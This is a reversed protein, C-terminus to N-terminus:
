AIVLWWDCIKETNEIFQSPLFYLNYIKYVYICYLYKQNLILIIQLIIHSKLLVIKFFQTEIGRSRYTPNPGSWYIMM